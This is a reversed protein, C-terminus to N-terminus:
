RSGNSCFVEVKAVGSFMREDKMSHHFQVCIATHDQVPNRRALVVLVHELHGNRLERPNDVQAVRKVHQAALVRCFQRIGEAAKGTGESPENKM